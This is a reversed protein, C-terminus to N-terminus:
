ADSGGAGGDEESNDAIGYDEGGVTTYRSKVQLCAGEHTITHPYSDSIMEDDSFLDIWVKM